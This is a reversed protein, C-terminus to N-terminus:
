IVVEDSIESNKAPIKEPSTGIFEFVEGDAVEAAEGEIAPPVEVPLEKLSSLLSILSVSGSVEIKSNEAFRNRDWKSSLWKRSDVMLKPDESADAIGKVEHVVLDAHGKLALEYDKMRGDENLWKWMVGYTMGLNSAVDRLALGEIVFDCVKDLFADEGGAEGIAYDLQKWADSRNTM